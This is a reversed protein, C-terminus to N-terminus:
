SGEPAAPDPDAAPEPFRFTFTTTAGQPPGSRGEMEVGALDLFTQTDLASCVTPMRDELNMEGHVDGARVRIEGAGATRAPAIHRDIVYKRIRAALIEADPEGDGADAPLAPEGSADAPEPEGAEAPAPEAPAPESSIIAPGDAGNGAPAAASPSDPDTQMGDAVELHAAQRAEIIADAVGVTYLEIARAADDNGPIVYDVRDPEHNTDVVGVIPIGLKDAEQVAIKEHGVDVIYLVDPLSESHKIGGLSRQLKALVRRFRLAEKKSMRQVRGDEEMAEMERLRAISARVTKFNTLMGGLWRQDVYPMGCRVAERRIIEQAARKTGVFLVTGNSAAMRGLFNIAERYLPLTVELNIIHIRNREGFIYPAMKPNWYRSQHGFHVGAELMGRMTVISMLSEKFVPQAEVCGM